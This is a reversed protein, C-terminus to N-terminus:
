NFKIKLTHTTKTTTKFRNDLRKGLVWVITDDANCLLWTKEKELLSLKEDKFFKSLKKKGQMGKPYFYDGKQRKRVVLPFKLLDKDVYVSNKSAEESSDAEIIEFELKLDGHEFQTSNEEIEISEKGIESRLESLLLYDRDKIIRHTNSFVLKGSQADLLDLVDNWETFNYAKLFEYLYAKPNSLKKIKSIDFRQIGNEISEIEHRFIEISDNIIQKSKQLNELTKDFTDLLSPNLEQLVPIINHRIKNRAYKTSANSKDERWLVNNKRAFEEIAVRTFRLLPRVIYGNIEPIGTFGDLGSGRTLNFLFTELVDNKNHATIIHDFENEQRIKEFWEYRLERAAVQISTKHSKSHENTNFSINFFPINMENALKKVFAEDLDSEKGRLQFNCHALSVEVDTLTLFLHALVVSDIGGSTALLLKKGKLFPFKHNIHEQFDHLV